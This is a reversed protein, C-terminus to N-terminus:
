KGICFERFIMEIAAERLQHGTIGGIAEVAGWADVGLCDLTAVGLESRMNSVYQQCSKLAMKQRLSIMGPLGASGGADKLALDEIANELEEIGRDERVSGRILRYKRRLEDMLLSPINGEGTDEKNILVITREAPVQALLARDDEDCGSEADLVFIVIQAQEIMERSKSIGLNEVLDATFHIGATDVLKLPIGKVYLYEEILDRTTGPIDTVIARDKKVLKNLLSSKGVNPKGCIVAVIGDRYVAAKEANSILKELVKDVAELLQGFEHHNIDGVDVPFDISAEVLANLRVLKEELDNYVGANEGSLQRVSWKVAQASRSRIVDIVAEAQSLDLRGNLYARRTFEGPEALRAGAELCRELCLRSAVPGGHCNIEVCDEGTYSRPGRMVALLVEDLMDGQEDVVWGLTLRHNEMEAVALGARRPRFVKAALELAGFGSVRVIAIAGEGAATALAAIIDEQM